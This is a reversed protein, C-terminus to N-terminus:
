YLTGLHWKQIYECKRAERKRFYEPYHAKELPHWYDLVWDPPTIVRESASGGDRSTPFRNVPLPCWIKFLEHEGLWLLRRREKPDTVCKNKDFEARLIVQHYRTVHRNVYFAEINRLAKKYLTCVKQSHTCLEPAFPM